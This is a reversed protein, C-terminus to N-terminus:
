AAAGEIKALAERVAEAPGRADSWVCEGLMVFDAGAQSLIPAEALSHAYAVCPTTFLEAWWGTRELLSPFDLPGSELGFAGFTVYDAGAEGASMADDRDALPGVGVILKPCLRKIASLLEEGYRRVHLGDAGVGLAFDPDGEVIFATGRSQVPGALAKAVTQAAAPNKADCRLLLSAVDGADLAAELRPLFAGADTVIPTALYLRPKENSM